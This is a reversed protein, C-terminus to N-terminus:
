VAGTWDNALEPYTIKVQSWFFPTFFSLPGKFNATSLFLTWSRNGTPIPQGATTSKPQTLPLALFGYGFLEGSTGEKLNLGDPPFLLSPSLQAIAYKGNGKTTGVGPGNAFIWESLNYITGGTGGIAVGGMSYKPTGTQFKRDFWWGLGGEIDTYPAPTYTNQPFMWTGYLGSQFWNTRPFDGVLPWAAAYFTYGANYTLPSPTVQLMMYGGVDLSYTSQAQVAAGFGLLAHCAAMLMVVRIPYTGFGKSIHM